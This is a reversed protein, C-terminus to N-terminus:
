PIILGNNEQPKNEWLGLEELLTSDNKKSPNKHLFSGTGDNLVQNIGRAARMLVAGYFHCGSHDDTNLIMMAIEKASPDSTVKVMQNPLDEITITVKAM